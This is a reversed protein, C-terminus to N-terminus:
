ERLRVTIRGRTTDYPTVEVLVRDGTMVRIHNERLGGSIPPDPPSGGTGKEPTTANSLTTLGCAPAPQFRDHQPRNLRTVIADCVFFLRRLQRGYTTSFTPLPPSVQVGSRPTIFRM